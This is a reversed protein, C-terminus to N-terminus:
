YSLSTRKAGPNRTGGNKKFNINSGTNSHRGLSTMHDDQAGIVISEIVLENQLSEPIPGVTSIDSGQGGATVRYKPLFGRARKEGM